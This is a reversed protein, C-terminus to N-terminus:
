GNQACMACAHATLSHETRARAIPLRFVGRIADVSVPQELNTVVLASEPKEPDGPADRERAVAVCQPPLEPPCPRSEGRIEAGCLACKPKGMPRQPEM